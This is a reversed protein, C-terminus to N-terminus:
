CDGCIKTVKVQNWCKWCVLCKCSFCTDPKQQIADAWGHALSMIFNRRSMPTTWASSSFRMRQYCGLWAHQLVCCCALRSNRMEGLVAMIRCESVQQGIHIREWIHYATWCSDSYYLHWSGNRGQWKLRKWESITVVSVCCTCGNTKTKGNYIICARVTYGVGNLGLPSLYMQKFETSQYLSCPKPITILISSYLLIAWGTRWECNIFVYNHMTRKEESMLECM